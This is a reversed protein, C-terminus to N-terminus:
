LCKKNGSSRQPFLATCSSKRRDTGRHRSANSPIGVDKCRQTRRRLRPARRGFDHAQRGFHHPVQCVCAGFSKVHLESFLFRGLQKPIDAVRTKERASNLMRNRLGNRAVMEAVMQFVSRVHGRRETPSSRACVYTNSIKSCRCRCAQLLCASM